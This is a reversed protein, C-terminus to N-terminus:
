KFPDKVCPDDFQFCFSFLDQSGRNKNIFYYQKKLILILFRDNQTQRQIKTCELMNIHLETNTSKEIWKTNYKM